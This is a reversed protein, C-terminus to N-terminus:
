VVSKRDLLIDLEGQGTARTVAGPVNADAFTLFSQEVRFRDLPGGSAKVTGTIKGQWDYPFDKGNFTRLLDFDVPAAQLDVNKVALVPGGVAFTMDGLLRSGTTRVDMDSLVYDIIHPNRDSRIDLVMKGGGTTPLTPYVWAVDSLSVSDGIIHVNYRLPLDSGWVLKGRARGTSRPLDWHNSDIWLSDGLNLATGSVNRFNFPPYSENFSAKRIRAFRGASDPDAIRAYGLSAQDRTWRWTRAFGERTRRIEQDKRSLEFAIASDLKAGRLTASPHWPMTLILSADHVDSSDIVIFQGFGRESKNQEQVSAPFIRRFNWEGNEHQRLHVVPHQADLHTLLIRRDFLDRADYRVKIPGSAVFLSDEDDRIEVSDITVGNFFGGGIRGIYVRGKVKGELMTSVMRRVREQGFGTHTVGVFSLGVIVLLAILIVASVIAIRLRRSM